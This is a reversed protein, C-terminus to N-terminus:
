TGAADAWGFAAGSRGDCPLPRPPRASFPRFPTAAVIAPGARVDDDLLLQLAPQAAWESAEKSLCGQLRSYAERMAESMMKHSALIRYLANLSAQLVARCPVSGSHTPRM